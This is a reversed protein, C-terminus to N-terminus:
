SKVLEDLFPKVIQMIEKKNKSELIKLLTDENRIIEIVKQLMVLQSSPHTIALMFIISVQIWEGTDMAKFPIPNRLTGIGICGKNVHLPDTHPIAIGIRNTSLGTPYEEERAILAKPFTEKVYNEKLFNQSLQFLADKYDNAAIDLEVLGENFILSHDEQTGKKM